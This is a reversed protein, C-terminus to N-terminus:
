CMDHTSSSAGSMYQSQHLIHRIPIITTEFVRHL